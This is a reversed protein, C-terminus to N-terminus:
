APNVAHHLAAVGFTLDRWRVKTWGADQVLGALTAQDPWALTSEALYRYSDPNSSVRALLPLGVKLHTRHGLALLPNTPHSVECVLLRGGPRTVRRLERLAGVTDAVNRLGFSITVADFADDAFPLKLADGAVFRLNATGAQRRVGVRLMGLSFDCAVTQAGAEAFPVSSTGTGAALDLVREGERAGLARVVERRWRRDQGGTMLTNLLDYREATDDFMAAVDAPQKDLSARTM